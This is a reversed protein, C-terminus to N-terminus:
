APLSAFASRLKKEKKERDSCGYSWQARIARQQRRAQDGAKAGRCAGGEHARFDLAAVVLRYNPPKQGMNSNQRQLRNELGWTRRADEDRIAAPGLCIRSCKKHGNRM